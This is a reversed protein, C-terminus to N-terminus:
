IIYMFDYNVTCKYSMCQDMGPKKTTNIIFFITVEQVSKMSM